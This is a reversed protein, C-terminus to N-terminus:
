NSVETVRLRGFLLNKKQLPLRVILVFWTISALSFWLSFDLTNGPSPAVIYLWGHSLTLSILERQFTFGSFCAWQDVMLPPGYQDHGVCKMANHLTRVAWSAYHTVSTHQSVYSLPSTIQHNAPLKYCSLSQDSRDHIAPLSNSTIPFLWWLNNVEDPPGRVTLGLNYHASHCQYNNISILLRSKTRSMEYGLQIKAAVGGELIARGVTQHSMPTKITIDLLKEISQIVVGVKAQSCGSWVIIWALVWAEPTFMSHKTLKIVNPCHSAKHVACKLIQPTHMCQAKLAHLIKQM